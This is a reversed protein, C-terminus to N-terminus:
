AIITKNIDNNIEKMDNDDNIQDYIIEQMIIYQSQKIRAYYDKNIPIIDSVNLLFPDDNTGFNINLNKYGNIRSKGLFNVDHKLKLLYNGKYQSVCEDNLLGFKKMLVKEHFKGKNMGYTFFQRFMDICEVVKVTNIRYANLTQFFDNLINERIDLNLDIFQKEIVEILKKLLLITKERNEINTQMIKLFNELNELNEAEMVLFEKQIDENTTENKHKNFKSSYIERVGLNNWFLEVCIELENITMIYYKNKNSSFNNYYNIDQNNTNNDLSIHSKSATNFNAKSSNEETYNLKNNNNNNKAMQIGKPRKLNQINNKNLIIKFGSKGRTKTYHNKKINESNFQEKLYKINFSYDHKSKKPLPRKEQADELKNYIFRDNWEKERKSEYIDKKKNPDKKSDKIKRVM